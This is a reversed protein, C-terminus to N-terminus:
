NCDDYCDSCMGFNQFEEETLEAGCECIFPTDAALQAQAGHASATPPTPQLMRSQATSFLELPLQIEPAPEAADSPPESLTFVVTVTTQEGTAAYVTPANCTPCTGVAQFYNLGFKDPKFEDKFDCAPNSCTVKKM